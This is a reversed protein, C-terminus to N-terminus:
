EKRCANLTKWAELVKTVYECNYDDVYTNTRWYEQDYEHLADLEKELQDFALVVIMMELRTM